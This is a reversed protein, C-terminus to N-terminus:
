RCTGENEQPAWEPELRMAELKKLIPGPLALFLAVHSLLFPRGFLRVDPLAEPVRIRVLDHSTRSKLTM